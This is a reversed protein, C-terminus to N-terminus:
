PSWWTFQSAWTVQGYFSLGSSVIDEWEAPPFLPSAVEVARGGTAPTLWLADNSVYLIDKGNRSWTPVSSGHVGVLETSRHTATNFVYLRHAGFWSLPPWFCRTAM